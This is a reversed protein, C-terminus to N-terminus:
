EGFKLAEAVFGRMQTRLAAEAATKPPGYAFQGSRRHRDTAKAVKALLTAYAMKDGGPVPGAGAPAEHGGALSQAIAAIEQPSVGMEIMAALAQHVAEEPSQEGAVAQDLGGPAMGGHPPM